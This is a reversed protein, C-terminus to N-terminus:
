KATKNQYKVNKVRSMEFICQCGCFLLFLVWTDWQAGWCHTIWPWDPGMEGGIIKFCILRIMEAMFIEYPDSFVIHVMFFLMSAILRWVCSVYPQASHWDDPAQRGKCPDPNGPVRRQSPAPEKSRCSLRPSPCSTYLIFKCHRRTGSLMSARSVFYVWLLFLYEGHIPELCPVMLSLHFLAWHGFNSYNSCCFLYPMNSESGSYLIGIESDM